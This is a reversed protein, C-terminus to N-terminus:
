GFLACCIVAGFIVFPRCLLFNVFPWFERVSSLLIRSLWAGCLMFHWCWCQVNYFTIFFYYYLTLLLDGLDESRVFRLLSKLFRSALCLLFNVIQQCQLFNVFPWCLKWEQCFYTLNSLALQLACSLNVITWCLLFTLLFDVNWFTLVLYVDREESTVSTLPIRSLSSTCRVACTRKGSQLVPILFLPLRTRSLMWKKSIHNACILFAASWVSPFYM